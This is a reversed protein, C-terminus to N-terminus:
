MTHDYYSGQASSFSSPEVHGFHQHSSSIADSSLDLPEEAEEMDDGGHHGCREIYADLEDETVSWSKRSDLNFLAPAPM